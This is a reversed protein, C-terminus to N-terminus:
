SETQQASNVTALERDLNVKPTTAEFSSAITVSVPVALPSKAALLYPEKEIQLADSRTIKISEHAKHM